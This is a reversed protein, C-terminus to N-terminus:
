EELVEDEEIPEFGPESESPLQAPITYDTTTQTTSSEEPPSYYLNEQAQPEPTYYDPYVPTEIQVLEQPSETVQEQMEPQAPTIIEVEKKKKKRIILFVLILVVIIVVVIVMILWEWGFSEKETGKGDGDVIDPKEINPTIFSESTNTDTGDSALFYYTHEGESLKTIYDYKGSYPTKGSQLVMDYEIGDIVVHIFTPLDDDLDFYNVTFTFETETDGELPIMKFNTLRPINNRLQPEKLVTMTFNHFDIGNEHDFVTVKIWYQKGGHSPDPTGSLIGGPTEISLWSANTELSWTLFNPHTRDDTANYDVEYTKNVRATEVDETTIIPPLNGKYVTIIFEHWDYGGDGDSVTVNVMFWGADSRTPTGNLVGTTPNISLWSANTSLSWIQKLGKSDIDTANYDVEYLEDTEATLIDQTIIIPLDNVNLVTLTFNTFDSGGETDNV